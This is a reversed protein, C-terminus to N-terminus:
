EINERIEDSLMKLEGLLEGAKQGEGKEECDAIAKEIEKMRRMLYNKKLAIAIKIIEMRAGESDLDYFDKDGLLVLRDLLKLQNGVIKDTQDPEAKEGGFSGELWNKLSNYNIASNLDAEPQNNIDNYYIILNKYFLKNSLGAIQDDQIHNIAYSLLGPFRLSLALLLESLMEEQSQRARAEEAKEPHRKKQGVESKTQASLTERLLNEEVEIKESLKRLWFGQEIKNGLKMIIPLIEKAAKRKDEVEDLNLNAFVKDFYYEMIPRAEKVAEAWEQPSNKICEDPDKGSPMMVVKINMEARMAERIGRDAAMQGAKDMDFGLAINNTYRKILKIQDETLATGSAAIVNKFNNQHATIVDMQGEVLVALNESKIAMRAKDLGFLIRSKDYIITSPSNVYKGMKEEAEKEKRVRATLAVVAGNIDFIPFMIRDRFRNYFRSSNQSKTSLGALFIENESYGKGRLLKLLDDWSDPSYGIRWTELTQKMLGRGSLYKRVGEASKETFLARSYYNAAEEMADMIRNRQSSIKPDQRELTVGAKPALNRLADVFGIGEIEMVFSFVDGGKGCGFCHWIQKEPSVIFSPTKERHFPCPARFNIGASKLPIYERIIEVIDLRSKIEERQDM